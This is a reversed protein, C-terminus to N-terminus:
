RGGLADARFRACDNALAVRGAFARKVSAVLTTESVAVSPPVHALVVSGVRADRAVEGIRSPSAHLDYLVAPAAPPDLVTANAVFLDAGRALDTVGDGALTTDGGFVVARGEHEIRYAVAPADGHRTSVATVHLGPRDLVAFADPRDIPLDRVSLALPNRFRPLYAFAGHPGLLGDVFARTSPYDGRGEPGAIFFSLPGDGALDRSKVFGPLDGAHDVHLHTLLVVDIGATDIEAEGIRVAAGPGVDVLVRPVGDVLVAHSASARVGPVPGGSGLVMVELAAGTPRSPMCRSPKADAHARAAHTPQARACAVICTAGLALALARVPHLLNSEYFLSM